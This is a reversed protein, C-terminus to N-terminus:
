TKSQTWGFSPRCPMSRSGHSLERRAAEARSAGPNVIVLVHM